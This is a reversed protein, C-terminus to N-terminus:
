NLNVKMKISFYISLSILALFAIIFIGNNTEIRKKDGLNSSSNTTSLWRSLYNLRAKATIISNEDANEFYFRADVSLRNFEDVLNLLIVDCQGYADQGGESNVYNAFALAQNEASNYSYSVSIEALLTRSSASAIVLELAYVKANM